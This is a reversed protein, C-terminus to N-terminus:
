KSPLSWIWHGRKQESKVGIRTRARALTRESIGVLDALALMEKAKRPGDRLERKLFEEAADKPRANTNGVAANLENVSIEEEGIFELHPVGGEETPIQMMYVWSPGKPGVNHKLHAMVRHDPNDPHQGIRIASRAAAIMDMTGGGQYLANDQKMKTLHRILVIACGYDKAVSEVKDILARVSVSDKVSTEPPIFSVWPDIIILDPEFEDLEERLVELGEDNFALRGNLVRIKEPDGGMADIRPRTTYSPDDEASIYLVNGQDLDGGDPLQGGCSIESALFMSLFSKGLGPDGELITIMGFPIYPKWLWDVKLAKVSSLTVFTPKHAM